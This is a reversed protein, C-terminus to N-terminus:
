VWGPYTRQMQDFNERTVLVFRKQFEANFDKSPTVGDPPADPKRMVFALLKGSEVAARVASAHRLVRFDPLVLAFRPLGAAKWSECQGLEAPLGILSVIIACDAHDRALQDWGDPAVLYSLPTTTDADILQARPNELAGPKLEPFAVAGITIKGAFGKRLGRIGAEEMQVIGKAIGPQRTFPNSLVLAREGPHTRALHEALVRTAMERVRFSNGQPDPKLSYWIAFAVVVTLLFSLAPTHRTM